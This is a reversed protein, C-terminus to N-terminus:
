AWGPQFMHWDAPGASILAEFETALAQTLATVDARRDGTPVPQIPSRMVCLWGGPEAYIGCPVLPAGSRLALAAPGAPMRRTAGFMEVEIGTGALDRDSVLAVVKNDGLAQGLARGTGSGTDLPLIEMGLDRRHKEFLRFLREPELREAVSVIPLGLSHVWKGAVDWNGMHPLALIVGKGAELAQDMHEKGECRFRRLVEDSSLEVAHFGQYWYRGYRVFAERTTALVARDDPSRGLVQAQNAAVVARSKPLVRFALAAVAGFLAVGMREPLAVAAARVAWFVRFTL